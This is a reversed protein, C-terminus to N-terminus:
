RSLDSLRQQLRRHVEAAQSIPAELDIDADDSSPVVPLASLARDVDGDGTPGPSAQERRPAEEDTM